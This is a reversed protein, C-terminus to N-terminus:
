CSPKNVEYESPLLVVMTGWMGEAKESDRHPKFHSGPEYLLLKYLEASVGEKPVDLRDCAEHLAKHIERQWGRNKIQFQSPELQWTHRVSPDHGTREGRGFPALTCLKKVEEADHNTLPLSIRPLGQIELGPQKIGINGATEFSDSTQLSKFTDLIQAEWFNHVFTLSPLEANRIAHLTPQADEMIEDDSSSSSKFESANSPQAPVTGRTPYRASRGGGIEDDSSVSDSM